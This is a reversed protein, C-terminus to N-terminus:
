TPKRITSDLGYIAIERGFKWSWCVIFFVLWFVTSQLVPTSEETAEEIIIGDEDYEQAYSSPLITFFLFLLFVISCPNRKTTTIKTTITTFMNLISTM